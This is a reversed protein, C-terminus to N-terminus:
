SESSRRLWLVVPAGVVYLRSEQTYNGIRDKLLELVDWPRLFCLKDFGQIYLQSLESEEVMAFSAM